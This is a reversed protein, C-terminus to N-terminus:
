KPVMKLLAEVTEAVVPDRSNKCYVSYIVPPKIKLKYIKYYNTKFILSYRGRVKSFYFECMITTTADPDFFKVSYGDGYPYIDSGDKLKFKLIDVSKMKYSYNEKYISGGIIGRKMEEITSFFESSSRSKSRMKNSDPFYEIVSDVKNDSGKDVIHSIIRSAGTFDGITIYSDDGFSQMFFYNRFDKPVPLLKLKEMSMPQNFFTNSSSISTILTLLLISLFIRKKM